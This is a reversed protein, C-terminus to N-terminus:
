CTPLVLLWRPMTPTRLPQMAIDLRCANGDLIITRVNAMVLLGGSRLTLKIASITMMLKMFLAEFYLMEYFCVADCDLDTTSVNM